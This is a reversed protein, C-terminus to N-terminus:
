REGYATEEFRSLHRVFRVDFKGLPGNRQKAQILKLITDERGGHLFWVLDAIAELDGSERLDRLTPEKDEAERGVQALAIAPCGFEKGMAKIDEAILGLQRYRQEGRATSRIIQLYDFILLDLRGARDKLRRAMARMETTNLGSRDDVFIRGPDESKLVDTLCRWEDRSVEGSRFCASDVSGRLALYRAAYEEATMELSFVGVVAGNNHRSRAVGDAVNLAFASKGISTRAGLIILSGPQLGGTLQDLRDFGTALGTLPNDKNALLELKELFKASLTAMSEWREKRGVPQLAMVDRQARNLLDDARDESHVALHMYENFLKVMQRRLAKEAVIQCYNEIHSFRPVGDFLASIYYPGGVKELQGRRELESQVTVPDIARGQRALETMVDYIIRNGDLFFDDPKLSETAQNIATNDLLIVGLILREAEVNQPPPRKLLLDDDRVPEDIFPGDMLENM